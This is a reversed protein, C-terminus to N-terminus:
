GAVVVRDRGQRKAAYLAADARGLADAPSSGGHATGISATVPLGGTLAEWPHAGIARRVAEVHRVATGPDTGTLVLLFEEGGLRAVFSGGPAPGRRVQEELLDAVARLVRDGAEHSCTDNVRKFHDLDLLAVTLAGQHEALLRPLEEDVYRRNYLGTLPDRLSLERYRRSQRRAETTEYMAQLARARADRQASQLEMLEDCYSRHEEYAARFDGAAAHLEAQERRARVRISTLGHRECRRVCEDLTAQARPLHGRRRRIEALTLLFDAGADGDLSADLVEPHLGPLLAAEAEELRDLEMLARGVTDLRGVRLPIGHRVALDQLKACWLLAEQFRGALIECYSRNNLVLLQRDVDGIEEALRLVHDYRDRAALDGNLGLCDALRAHHDIRVQTRADDPLLEVSRVAHELALSLDGLEQFVAALVFHGRALLNRSGHDAAWRHIEEALRGAEAVGGRRRVLDAQVLRARRELEPLGAERAGALAVEARQELGDEDFRSRDELEAIEARLGPDAGAPPPAPLGSGREGGSREAM